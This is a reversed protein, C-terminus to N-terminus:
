QGEAGRGAVEPRATCKTVTWEVASKYRQGCTLCTACYGQATEEPTVARFSLQHEGGEEMVRAARCTM